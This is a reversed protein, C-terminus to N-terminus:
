LFAIGDYVADVVLISRCVAAPESADVEAPSAFAFQAPHGRLGATLHEVHIAAVREVFDEALNLILHPRLVGDSVLGWIGLPVTRIVLDVDLKTILIVLWLGALTVVRDLRFILRAEGFRQTIHRGPTVCLPAFGAYLWRLPKAQAKTTARYPLADRHHVVHELPTFMSPDIVEWHHGPTNRRQGASKPCVRGSAGTDGDRVTAEM